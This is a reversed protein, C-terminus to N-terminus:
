VYSRSPIRMTRQHTPRMTERDLRAKGREPEEEAEEM